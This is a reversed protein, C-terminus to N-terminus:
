LAQTLGALIGSFAAIIALLIFIAPITAVAWKVMFWVMSWFKMNIDVIIVEKAKEKKLEKEV